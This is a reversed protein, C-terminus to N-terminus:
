GRGPSMDSNLQVFCTAYMPTRRMGNHVHRPQYALISLFYEGIDVFTSIGIYGDRKLFHSDRFQWTILGDDAETVNWTEYVLGKGNDSTIFLHTNMDGNLNIFAYNVPALDSEASKM